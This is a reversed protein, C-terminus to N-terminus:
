DIDDWVGWGAESYRLESIFELVQQEDNGSLVNSSRAAKELANMMDEYEMKCETMKEKKCCCEDEIHCTEGKKIEEFKELMEPVAALAAEKTPFCNGMNIAALDNVNINSFTTQGFFGDITRIYYYDEGNKPRWPRKQITYKGTLLNFLATAHLKWNGSEDVLGDSTIKYPGWDSKQGTEYIVDFEEEIEVGLMQAIEPMYNNKSM